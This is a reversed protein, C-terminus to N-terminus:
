TLNKTIEVTKDMLNIVFQSVMLFEASMLFHYCMTEM